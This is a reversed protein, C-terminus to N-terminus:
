ENSGGKADERLEYTWINGAALVLHYGYRTLVIEAKAMLYGTPLNHINVQIRKPRYVSALQTINELENM